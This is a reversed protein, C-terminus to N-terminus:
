SSIKLFKVIFQSFKRLFNFRTKSVSNTLNCCYCCRNCCCQTQEPALDDSLYEELERIPNDEFAKSLIPIISQYIIAGKDDKIVRTAMKKEKNYHFYIHLEPYIM